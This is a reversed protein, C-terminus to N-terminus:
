GASTGLDGIGDTVRSGVVAAITEVAPSLQAFSEAYVADGRRYPDIVDDDDAAPRVLARRAAALPLLAALREGSTGPPLEGPDVAAALRALERLLFTRRVAGPFIDVIRARHSRTLAIVLDAERLMVESLQRAAFGDASAGAGRVLTAMADPMGAGVVARVGASSVVVDAGPGLRATLLREVAPSRCINGTCVVLVASTSSM